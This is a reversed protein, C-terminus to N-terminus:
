PRAPAPLAVSGMRKACILYSLGNTSTFGAGEEMIEKSPPCKRFCKNLLWKHSGVVLCASLASISNIEQM